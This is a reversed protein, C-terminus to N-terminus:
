DNSLLEALARLEEVIEKSELEIRDALQTITAKVFFRALLDDGPAGVRAGLAETPAVSPVLPLATGKPPVPALPASVAKVVSAEAPRSIEWSPSSGRSLCTLNRRVNEYMAHMQRSDCQIGQADVYERLADRMNMSAVKTQGPQVDYESYLYQLFKGHHSRAFRLRRKADVLV